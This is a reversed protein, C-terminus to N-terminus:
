FDYILLFFIFSGYFFSRFLKFFSYFFYFWLCLIVKRSATSICPSWASRACLSQRTTRRGRTQASSATGGRLNGTATLSLPCQGTTSAM